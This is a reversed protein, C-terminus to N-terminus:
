CKQFFALIFGDPGSAKDGNTDKIVDWVEKEEFARELWISEDVDISLFSLGEVRPRWSCNEFYLNNYYQVIHEKIEAPNRSITRNISLSNVQNFKRHSNAVRHFNKTNKDGEKLWLARSKQRWSMEEFLLTKELERVM